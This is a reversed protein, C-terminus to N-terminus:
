QSVSKRPILTPDKAHLQDVALFKIMQNRANLPQLMGKDAVTSRQLRKCSLNGRVGYLGHNRIHDRMNRDTLPPLPDGCVPLSSAAPPPQSKVGSASMGRVPRPLKVRVSPGPQPAAVKRPLPKPAAAKEVTVAGSPHYAYTSVEGGAERPVLAAIILLTAFGTTALSIVQKKTAILVISATLSILVLAGIVTETM